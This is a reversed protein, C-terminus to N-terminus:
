CLLVQSCCFTHNLISKADARANGSLTNLQAIRKDLARTTVTGSADKVLPAPDFCVKKVTKPRAAPTTSFSQESGVEEQTARKTTAASIRAISNSEGWPLM